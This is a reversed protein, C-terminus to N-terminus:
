LSLISCWKIFCRCQTKSRAADSCSALVAQVTSFKELLLVSQMEEFGLEQSLSLSFFVNFVWSTICNLLSSSLIHRFISWFLSARYITADAMIVSYFLLQWLKSRASVMLQLVKCNFLDTVAEECDKDLKLVQEMAKEAENYRQLMCLNLFISGFGVTACLNLCSIVNKEGM